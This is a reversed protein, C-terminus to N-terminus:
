ADCYRKGAEAFYVQHFTTPLHEFGPITKMRWHPSSLCAAWRPSHARSYHWPIIPTLSMEFDSCRIHKVLGILVQVLGAKCTRIWADVSLRLECLIPWKCCSQNCDKSAELRELIVSQYTNNKFPQLWFWRYLASCSFCPACSHQNCIIAQNEFDRWIVQLPWGKMSWRVPSFHSCCVLM